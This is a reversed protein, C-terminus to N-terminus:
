KIYKQHSFIRIKTPLQMLLSVFPNDSWLLSFTGNNHSIFICCGILQFFQSRSFFYNVWVNDQKKVWPRKFLRTSTTLVAFNEYKQYLFDNFRRTFWNQDFRPFLHPSQLTTSLSLLRTHFASYFLWELFHRARTLELNPIM